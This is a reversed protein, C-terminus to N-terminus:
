LLWSLELEHDVELSRFSEAEGDGFRDQQAGILHDTSIAEAAIAHTVRTRAHRWSTISQLAYTLQTNQSQAGCQQTGRLAPTNTKCVSLLLWRRPTNRHHEDRRRRLAARHLCKSFPQAIGAVRFAAIHHQIPLGRFTIVCLQGRHKDI